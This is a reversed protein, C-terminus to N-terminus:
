FPRRRFSFAKASLLDLMRRVWKEFGKGFTFGTEGFGKGFGILPEGSGRFCPETASENTNSFLHENLGAGRRDLGLPWLSRPASLRGTGFTTCSACATNSGFCHRLWYFLMPAFSFCSECLRDLAILYISLNHM